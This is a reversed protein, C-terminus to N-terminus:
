KTFLIYKSYAKEKFLELNTLNSTSKQKDKLNYIKIPELYNNTTKDADNLVSYKKINDKVEIGINNLYISNREIINNATDVFGNHGMKYSDGKNNYKGLAYFDLKVKESM